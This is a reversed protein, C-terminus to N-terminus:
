LMNASSQAIIEGEGDFSEGGGRFASGLRARPEVGYEGFDFGRELLRALGLSHKFSHFRKRILRDTEGSPNTLAGTRFERRIEQKPRLSQDLRDALMAGIHPQLRLRQRRPQRGKFMGGAFHRQRHLKVEQQVRM